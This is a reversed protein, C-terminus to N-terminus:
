KLEELTEVSVVAMTLSKFKGSLMYDKVIVTKDTSVNSSSFSVQNRRIFQIIKQKYSNEIRLGETQM